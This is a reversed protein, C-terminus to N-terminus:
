NQYAGWQGRDLTRFRIAEALHSTTIHESGALDAITRSVKLIRDYARASLQLRKMASELMTQSAPDLKCYVQIHKSEMQANCHIIRGKRNFRKAQINRATIVRDRIQRSSEGTVAGSISGPFVPTVEIHLDIRDLLPGSIRNFYKQVM